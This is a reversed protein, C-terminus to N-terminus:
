NLFQTYNMNLIRDSKLSINQYNTNTVKKIINNLLNNLELLEEKNLIIQFSKLGIPIIIKRKYQLNKNSNEWKDGDLKSMYDAFNDFQKITLNFCLNKYEVHIKDCMNCKFIQGNQTKNIQIM